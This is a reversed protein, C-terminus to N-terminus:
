SRGCLPGPSREVSDIPAELGDESHKEFSAGILSPARSVAGPHKIAAIALKALKKMSSDSESIQLHRLATYVPVYLIIAKRSVRSLEVLAREFERANLWQM